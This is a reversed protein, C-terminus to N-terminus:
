KSLKQRCVPSSAIPHAKGSLKIASVIRQVGSIGLQVYCQERDIEAASNFRLV